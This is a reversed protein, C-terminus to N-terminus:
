CASQKHVHESNELNQIHGVTGSANLAQMIKSAIAEIVPVSVSNGAQKYVASDPLDEPIIFRDDFGQMRLCERPTLKRIDKDDIILPVNHGGMGMNATLTPCVGSKNERVYQRRWQYVHDKNKMEEKLIDYYKTHGYYYKEPAVRDILDHPKLTEEVKEPFEFADHAHKNKFAIIFIRERNQPIISHECTNLVQNQVHYGHNILTEEIVRYTNGKDHGKLNKVNELFIAQPQLHKALRMIEFFLNGRDDEFGKRYGAVSFAQCPFGACLVDTPALDKPDILHIDGEILPHSHNARYTMCARKDIENAWVIDFGARDFGTAVGGIGAFLDGVTFM